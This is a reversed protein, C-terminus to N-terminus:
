QKIKILYELFPDKHKEAWGALEKRCNELERKFKPDQALNVMEGPDNELDYLTERQKGENYIWYKFHKNRLMRGEPQPKYGNVTEGQVPKDSVVIYERDAAYSGTTIIQKLSIGPIQFNLSIGALDCLTPMLDIGTQVLYDSKRPTLGSYSIIFPVKAAEEFFVTKQNWMHAGQCDGHDSLFIIITNKDLGSERLANLIKGIEGDVKEIMRYYAWIYQRWKKDSFGSVPFMPNAQYSVRLMQMIDTENKSVAHNPRLPPCQDASPVKGIDGDPLKQGRAWECINHPNIFSAVLLFPKNRKAKLFKIASAPVLNDVGNSKINEMYHFGHSKEDKSDYPLHWKGVFGTEYGAKDFVKGFSPFEKPDIRKEENYQIGLEHPYRGTLMSSRSPVSLPNACYANTFSIGHKALNDLNPTNLYKNGINYSMSESSLEDTFIILFNPKDPLKQAYSGSSALVALVSCGLVRRHAIRKM